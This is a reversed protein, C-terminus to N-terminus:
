DSQEQNAPVASLALSLLFPYLLMGWRPHAVAAGLVASNASLEQPVGSRWFAGCSGLLGMPDLTTQQAFCHAMTYSLVALCGM